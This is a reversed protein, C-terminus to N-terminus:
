LTASISPLLVTAGESLESELSAANTGGDVSAM